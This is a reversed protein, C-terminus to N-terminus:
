SRRGSRGSDNPWNAWSVDLCLHQRPYHRELLWSVSNENRRSPAAASAFDTTLQVHSLKRGKRSEEILDVLALMDRAASATCMFRRIDYSDSGHQACLSGFAKARSFQRNVADHGAGLDGMGRQQFVAARRAFDDQYCDAVPISHSVGHPDFSVIEYHLDSDILSRLFPGSQVLDNVGSGGPGGPNTFITGGFTPDDEAVVAPLAIVAITAFRHDSENRWDLPLIVRACKFVDYCDHYQLARSSTIAWDFDTARAAAFLSRALFALCLIALLNM